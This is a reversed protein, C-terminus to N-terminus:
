TGGVIFLKDKLKLILEKTVDFNAKFKAKTEKFGMEMDYTEVSALKQAMLVNTSITVLLATLLYKM